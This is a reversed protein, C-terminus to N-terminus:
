SDNNAECFWREHAKQLEATDNEGPLVSDIGCRPCLATKGEDAWEEIAGGAFVTLCFYCGCITHEVIEAHNHRSRKPANEIDM